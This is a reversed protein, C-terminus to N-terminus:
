SPMHCYMNGNDDEEWILDPNHYWHVPENSGTAYAVAAAIEDVENLTDCTAICENRYDVLIQRSKTGVEIM